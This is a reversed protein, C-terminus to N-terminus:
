LELNHMPWSEIRPPGQTMAEPGVLDAVTPMVKTELFRDFTARSDWV